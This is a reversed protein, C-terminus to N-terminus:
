ALKIKGAILYFLGPVFRRMHVMLLEKRGILVERKRRHIANLYKRACAEASIGSAQRPDMVGHREGERDLANISINTRVVGPMAVTVSIATDKLEMGLTEFFGIVAHKSASYASRLPFGFKGAISSTVAISGSGREMMHPLVAKTLIVAGFFNINMVRYDVEPSTEWTYARQSIGGNNILVDICGFHGLARPVTKEISERSSLDMPLLLVETGLEGCSSKVKQLGEENIDSLVLKAGQSGARYALAEGIGSAAGTIWVVKDKFKM